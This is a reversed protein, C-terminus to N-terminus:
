AVVQDEIRGEEITDVGPQDIQEGDILVRGIHGLGIDVAGRFRQVGALQVGVVGGGVALDEIQRATRDLVCDRSLIAFLLEMGTGVVVGDDGGTARRAQPVVAGGEGRKIAATGGLRFEGFELNREERRVLVDHAQVQERNVTRDAM